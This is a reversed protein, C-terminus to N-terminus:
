GVLRAGVMQRDTMYALMDLLQLTGLERLHVQRGRGDDWLTLVSPVALFLRAIEAIIEKRVDVLRARSEFIPHGEYLTSVSDEQTGMVYELVKGPFRDDEYTCIQGAEADRIWYQGQQNAPIVILRDFIANVINEDNVHRLSRYKELVSNNM